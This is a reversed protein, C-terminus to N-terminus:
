FCHFPFITKVGPLVSKGKDIENLGNKRAYNMFVLTAFGLRYSTGKHRGKRSSPLPNSIDAPTVTM